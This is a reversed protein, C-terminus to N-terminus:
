RDLVERMMGINGRATQYRQWLEDSAAYHPNGRKNDDNTPHWLHLMDRTQVRAPPGNITEMAAAWAQDEPAWGIFREDFGGVNWFAEKTTLILSANSGFYEAKSKAWQTPDEAPSSRLIIETSVEDLERYRRYPIVWTRYQLEEIAKSLADPYYVADADSILVIDHKAQRVGNNIAHSRCFYTHAPEPEEALIAEGAILSRYRNLVWTAIRDRPGNDDSRFPIVVSVLPV